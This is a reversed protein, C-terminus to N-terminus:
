ENQEIHVLIHVRNGPFISMFKHLGAKYAKRYLKGGKGPPKKTTEM